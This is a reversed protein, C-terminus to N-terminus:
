YREDGWAHNLLAATMGHLLVHSGGPAVGHNEHDAALFEGGSSNAHGMSVSAGPDNIGNYNSGTAGDTNLRRRGRGASRHSGVSHRVLPSLGHHNDVSDGQGSAAGAAHGQTRPELTWEALSGGVWGLPQALASSSAHEECPWSSPRIHPARAATAVLGPWMRRAAPGLAGAEGAWAVGTSMAPAPVLAPVHHMPLSGGQPRLMSSAIANSSSVQQVLAVVQMQQSPTLLHWQWPMGPPTSAMLIPAGDTQGPGCDAPGQGQRDNVKPAAPEDEVHSMTNSSCPKRSSECSSESTTAGSDVRSLGATTATYARRAPSPVAPSAGLPMVPVDQGGAARGQAQTWLLPGGQQALTKNTGGFALQPEVALPGAATGFAHQMTGSMEYIQAAGLNQVGVEAPFSGPGSFATHVSGLNGGGQRQAQTGPSTPLDQPRILMVTPREAAASADQQGPLRPFGDSGVTLPGRDSADGMLTLQVPSAWGTGLAFIAPAYEPHAGVRTREPSAVAPLSGGTGVQDRAGAADLLKFQAQLMVGRTFPHGQAGESALDGPSTFSPAAGAGDVVMSTVSNRQGSLAYMGPLRHDASKHSKSQSHLDSWSVGPQSGADVVQQAHTGHFGEATGTSLLAPRRMCPAPRGSASCCAACYTRGYITIDIERNYLGHLPASFATLRVRGGTM